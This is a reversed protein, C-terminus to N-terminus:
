TGRTLIGKKISFLSSRPHPDPSDLEGTLQFLMFALILVVPISVFPFAKTIKTGVKRQLYLYWLGFGKYENHRLSDQPMIVIDRKIPHHIGFDQSSYIEDKKFLKHKLLIFAGKIDPPSMQPRGEPLYLTREQAVKFKTFKSKIFFYQEMPIIVSVINIFFSVIFVLAIVTIYIKKKRGQLLYGMPLILCPLILVLYRPGWSLRLTFSAVAISVVVIYIYLISISFLLLFLRREKKFFRPLSFLSLILLPSYVFLGKYSSFTIYHLGKILTLYLPRKPSIVKELEWVYGGRLADGFVQFRFWFYPLIFGMVISIFIVTFRINKERLSIYVAFILFLPLVIVTAYKTIVLLGVFVASIAIDQYKKTEQAKFIFYIAGLLETMLLAEPFTSNAYYWASTGLGLFLALIFSIRFSFNMRRACKMLLICGFAM